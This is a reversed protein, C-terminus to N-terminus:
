RRPMRRATSPWAKWSASSSPLARASRRACEMLQQVRIGQELGPEAARGEAVAAVARKVVPLSEKMRFPYYDTEAKFPLNPLAAASIALGNQAFLLTYGDAPAKAVFELAIMGGAGARNEVVVPEGVLGIRRERRANRRNGPSPSM